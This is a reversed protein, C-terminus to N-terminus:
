RRAKAVRSPERRSSAFLRRIGEIGCAAAIPASLMGGVYHARGHGLAAYAFPTLASAISWSFLLWAAGDGVPHRRYLAFAGLLFLATAALPYVAIMSRESYSVGPPYAGPFDRMVAAPLHALWQETYQAMLVVITGVYLVFVPRREITRRVPGHHLRPLWATAAFLLAITPPVAVPAGLVVYIAVCAPTLMAALLMGAVLRSSGLTTNSLDPSDNM